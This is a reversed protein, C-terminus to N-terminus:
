ALGMSVQELRSQSTFSIIASNFIEKGNLIPYALEKTKEV